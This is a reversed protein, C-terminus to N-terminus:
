LHNSASALILKYTFVTKSIKIIFIIEISWKVVCHWFEMFIIEPSTNQLSIYIELGM